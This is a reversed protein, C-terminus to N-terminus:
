TDTANLTFTFTQFDKIVNPKGEINPEFKWKRIAKTAKKRMVRMADLRIKELDARNKLEKSSVDNLIVEIAEIDDTTGDEMISFSVKVSGHAGLSKLKSPWNPGPTYIANELDVDVYPKPKNALFIENRLYREARYVTKFRIGGRSTYYIPSDDENLVKTGILLYIDGIDADQLFGDTFCTFDKNKITFEKDLSGKIEKISKFTVSVEARLEENEGRSSHAKVQAIVSFNARKYTEQINPSNIISCAYGQSSFVFMLAILLLVKQLLTLM